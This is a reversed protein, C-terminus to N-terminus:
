VCMPIKRRIDKLPPIASPWGDDGSFERSRSLVQGKLKRGGLVAFWLVGGVIVGLAM